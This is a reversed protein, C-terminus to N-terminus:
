NVAMLVRGPVEILKKTNLKIEKVVETEGDSVTLYYVGDETDVFDLKQGILTSKKSMVQRHLVRNEADRLTVFLPTGKEKEIMVNMKLTNIVPYMGVQFSSTCPKEQAFSASGVLVFCGAAILSKMLNKM